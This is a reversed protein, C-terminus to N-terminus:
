SKLLVASFGRSFPKISFKCDVFTTCITGNSLNANFVSKREIKKAENGRSKINQTPLPQSLAAKRTADGNKASQVVRM